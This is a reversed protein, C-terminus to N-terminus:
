DDRSDVFKCIDLVNTVKVKSGDIIRMMDEAAMM